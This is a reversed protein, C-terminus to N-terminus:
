AQQVCTRSSPDCTHTSPCGDGGFDPDCAIPKCQALPVCPGYVTNNEVRHLSGLPCPFSPPTLSGPTRVIVAPDCDFPGGPLPAVEATGCGVATSRLEGEECSVYNCENGQRGMCVADDRCPRGSPFHCVEAAPAPEPVCADSGPDCTYASPCGDSGFAPDCAIPKCQALPVCPGVLHNDVVQLLSGIPCTWAPPRFTGPERVILSPDCDFPGGPLRPAEVDSCGIATSEFSGDERCVVYNCEAGQSALCVTDARCPRGSDFHCVEIEPERTDCAAATLLLLVATILIRMTM